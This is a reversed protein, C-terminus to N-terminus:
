GEINKNLEKRVYMVAEKCEDCIKGTCHIDCPVDEGCILCPTSVSVTEAERLVCELLADCDSGYFRHKGTIACKVQPPNSDYCLGDTYNCFGCKM